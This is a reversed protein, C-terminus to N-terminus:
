GGPAPPPLRWLAEHEFYDRGGDVVPNTAGARASLMTNLVQECTGQHTRFSGSWVYWIAGDGARELAARAFAVPDTRALRDTYDVWDVRDGPAFDPYVVLEVGDPLERAVAPGLQDPCTIVLDNPAVQAEIADAVQRAQTRSTVANRGSGLVGLLLVIGVGVRFALGDGLRTLGLAASLLILPALIALYRTVFATDTAYSALMAIGMTLTIMLLMPRAERQTGLDLEVHRSDVSRGFLALLILVLLLVGLMVSDGAPGGGLDSMSQAIVEAPQQPGGWPTGTHSSQHLLSPVWPLFLM